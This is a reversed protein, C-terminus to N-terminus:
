TTGNMNYDRRSRRDIAIVLMTYSRSEINIESMKIAILTESFRSAALVINRQICNTFMISIKNKQSDTKIFRM